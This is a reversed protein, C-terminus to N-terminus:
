WNPPQMFNSRRGVMEGIVLSLHWGFNSCLDRHHCNLWVNRQSTASEDRRKRFRTGLLTRHYKGLFSAIKALLAHFPRSLKVCYRANYDALPETQQRSGRMLESTVKFTLHKKRIATVDALKSGDGVAAHPRRCSYSRM